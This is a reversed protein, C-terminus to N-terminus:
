WMRCSAAQSEVVRVSLLKVLPVCAPICVKRPQDQSGPPCHRRSPPEMRTRVIGERIATRATAATEESQRRRAGLHLPDHDVLGFALRGGVAAFGEAGGPLVFFDDAVGVAFEIGPIRVVGDNRINLQGRAIRAAHDLIDGRERQELRDIQCFGAVHQEIFDDIAASLEFRAAAFAAVAIKEASPLAVNWFPRGGRALLGFCDLNRDGLIEVARGDGARHQRADHVGAAVGRRQDNIRARHGVERGREIRRPGRQGSPARFCDVARLLGMEVTGLESQAQASQM